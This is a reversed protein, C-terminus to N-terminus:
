DSGSDGDSELQPIKEPSDDEEDSEAVNRLASPVAPKYVKRDDQAHGSRDARLSGNKALIMANVTLPCLSGRLKSVLLGCASFVQEAPTATATMCLTGKALKLLNSLRGENERWWFCPTSPM